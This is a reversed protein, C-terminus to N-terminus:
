VVMNLAVQREEELREEIRKQSFERLWLWFSIRASRGEVCRYYVKLAAYDVERLTLSALEIEYAKFVTIDEGVFGSMHEVTFLVFKDDAVQFSANEVYRNIRDSM